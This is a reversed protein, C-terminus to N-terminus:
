DQSRALQIRKRKMGYLRQSTEDKQEEEDEEQDEMKDSWARRRQKMDLAKDVADDEAFVVHCSSGSKLYELLTYDVQEDEDMDIVVKDQRLVIKEVHGCRRFLRQFHRITADVPINVVFLTRGNPLESDNKSNHPKIYMFHEPACEEVNEVVLGSHFTKLDVKLLKFSPLTVPLVKFGAFSDLSM